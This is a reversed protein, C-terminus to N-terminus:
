KGKESVQSPSLSRLRPFLCFESLSLCLLGYSPIMTAKSDMALVPKRTEVHGFFFGIFVLAFSFFCSFGCRFWFFFLFFFRQRVCFEMTADRVRIRGTLKLTASESRAPPRDFEVRVLPAPQVTVSFPHERLSGENEAEVVLLM